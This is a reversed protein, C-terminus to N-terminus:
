DARRDADYEASCFPGGQFKDAIPDPPILAQAAMAQDRYDDGKGIPKYGYRQANSNDWWAAANNSAGYFIEFQIDRHEFGIRILQVL